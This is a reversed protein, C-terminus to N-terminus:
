RCSRIDFLTRTGNNGEDLMTGVQQVCPEGFAAQQEPSLGLWWQRDAYVFDYGAAAMGSPTGREVLVEWDPLPQYDPSSSRVLRGTVVVARWPHSDFVIAQQPLSDWYASTMRADLPTLDDGIVAQTWATMLPGLTVVGGFLLVAWWTLLALRGTGSRRSRVWQWAVLGGLLPWFTLSFATFRSIDRDVEYRLFLPLLFGLWAAVGLAAFEFRGKRAWHGLRAGVVPAALIGAGLELLGVLLLGPRHLPLEGLHASVIAPPWRLALSSAGFGAAPGSATLGAAASRALETLTGGQFLALAGGLL